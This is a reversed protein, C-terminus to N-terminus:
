IIEGKTLMKLISAIQKDYLSKAWEAGIKLDIGKIKKTKNLVATGSIKKAIDKGVTRELEDYKLFEGYYDEKSDGISYATIRYTDKGDKEYDIGQVQKSM